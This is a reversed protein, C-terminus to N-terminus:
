PCITSDPLCVFNRTQCCHYGTLCHLPCTLAAARRPATFTATLTMLLALLALTIKRM